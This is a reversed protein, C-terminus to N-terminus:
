APVPVNTGPAFTSPSTDFLDYGFPKLGEAGTQKLPMKTARVDLKQLGPEVKLRLTAQEETLGLLPIGAFGPLNLVGEPTLRYPNRSRILEIVVQLSKKEEDTLPEAPYPNQQQQGFQAAGLAPNASGTVGAANALQMGQLNQPSNMRDAYLAQL